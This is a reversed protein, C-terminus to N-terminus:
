ASPNGKHNRCTFDMVSFYFTSNNPLNLPEHFKFSDFLKWFKKKKMCQELKGVQVNYITLETYIFLSQFKDISEKDELMLLHYPLREKASNPLNSEHLLSDIRNSAGAPQQVGIQQMLTVEGMALGTTDDFTDVQGSKTLM